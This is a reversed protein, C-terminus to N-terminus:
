QCFSKIIGVSLTDNVTIDSRRVNQHCAVATGLNRVEPQASELCGVGNRRLLDWCEPGVRGRFLQFAVLYVSPSVQEGQTLDKAAHHCAVSRQAPWIGNRDAGIDCVEIRNACGREIM